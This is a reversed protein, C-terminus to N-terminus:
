SLKAIINNVETQSINLMEAIGEISKGFSLATKVSGELRGEERSKTAANSVEEDIEKAMIRRMAECM